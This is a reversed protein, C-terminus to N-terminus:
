QVWAPDIKAEPARGSRILGHRVRQAATGGRGLRKGFVHGLKQRVEAGGLRALHNTGHGPRPEVHGHPDEAGAEVARLEGRREPERIRERRVERRTQERLRQLRIAGVETRGLPEGLRVDHEAYVHKRGLAVVFRPPQERRQLLREDVQPSPM